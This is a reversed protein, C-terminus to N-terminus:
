TPCGDEFRTTATDVGDPHRVGVAYVLMIPIDYCHPEWYFYNRLPPHFRRFRGHPGCSPMDVAMENTKGTMSQTTASMETM